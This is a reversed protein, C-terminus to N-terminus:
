RKEGINFSIAVRPEDTESPEVYHELWSPFLILALREPEIPYDMNRISHGQSRLAPNCLVLKGSHKPVQLYFVGSIIGEHIHHANYNYKTNVMAWMELFKLEGRAYPKTIDRVINLLCGAFEKFIGHEHLNCESHWGGYNSKIVSPVKSKLDLIYDTYDMAQYHQDNLVYGWIPIDFLNHHGYHMPTSDM